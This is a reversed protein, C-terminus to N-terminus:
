CRETRKLWQAETNFIKAGKSGQAKANLKQKATEASKEGIDASDVDAATM